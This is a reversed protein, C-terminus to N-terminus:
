RKTSDITGSLTLRETPYKADLSTYVFLHISFEQTRGAPNFEVEVNLSEGPQLAKPRTLVKLCSCMSRFQTIVVTESTTNRLTFLKRVRETNDIDEIHITPREAVVGRQATTSLTPNALSDLERRSPLRDLQASLSEVSMVLLAVCWVIVRM